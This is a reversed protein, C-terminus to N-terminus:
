NPSMDFLTPEIVAPLQVYVPTEIGRAKCLSRFRKVSAVAFGEYHNNFYVYQRAGGACTKLRLNPHNM